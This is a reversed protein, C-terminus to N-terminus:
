GRGLQPTLPSRSRAASDVSTVKLYGCMEGAADRFVVTVAGRDTGFWRDAVAALITKLDADDMSEAYAILDDQSM